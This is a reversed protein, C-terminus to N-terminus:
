YRRDSIENEIFSEFAWYLRPRNLLQRREAIYQKCVEYTTKMAGGRIEKLARKNLSGEFMGQCLFEYFDLITIITADDDGSINGDIVIEKNRAQLNLKAMKTNAEALSDSTFISLVVDITHARREQYKGFQLGLLFIFVSFLISLFTFIDQTTIAKMRLLFGLFDHESPEDAVLGDRVFADLYDDHWCSTQWACGAIQDQSFSKSSKMYDAILIGFLVICLIFLILTIGPLLQWRQLRTFTHPFLIKM